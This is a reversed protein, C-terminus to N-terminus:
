YQNCYLRNLLYPCLSLCLALSHGGHDACIVVRSVLVMSFTQVLASYRIENEKRVGRTVHGFWLGAYCGAM